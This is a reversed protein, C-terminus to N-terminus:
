DKVLEYSFDTEWWLYSARMPPVRGNGWIDREIVEFMVAEEIVHVDKNEDGLYLSITFTGRMFPVKGLDCAIRNVGSPDLGFAFRQYRNNANLLKVGDASSIVFGIFGKTIRASRCTVTLVLSDGYYLSAMGNPAHNVFASEIWIHAGAPRDFLLSEDSRKNSTHHLYEQIAKDTEGKYIIRGRDLVITNPCLNKVAGLNHSVFLITRGSKSVDQMKGLCKKQFEADGVALVEDVILIEPELFAAVSFALRLQMGSSYHKLPTDLFKETGSFSVIEDFKGIIESRRMGLLSGNFFINERGTLEPHFGTGVELLSAVRGRVVIRGKTPPTIRSLIKLLTSKGAGNRGIIALNDGSNVEFTVDRVAWFDEVQKKAFRLGESLKERLSFYGGASHQIKFKKSVDKIELIPKM